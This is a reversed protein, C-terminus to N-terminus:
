DFFEYMDATVPVYGMTPIQQDEPPLQMYDGFWLTLLADADAPGPFRYAGIPVPVPTGLFREPIERKLNSMIDNIVRYTKIEADNEYKRLLKETKERYKQVNIHRGFSGLLWAAVKMIGHYNNYDIKDRKGNLVGYRYAIRALYLKGRFGAPFRNMLFIDLGIRNPIGHYYNVYSEEMRIRAKKYFLRPVMDMYVDGFDDPLVVDYLEGDVDDKLHPRLKEYEAYTMIIDVDNDWPIFDHHRVAGLLGGFALYYTADHKKAVRDFERLMELNVRHIRDLAELEEKGINM